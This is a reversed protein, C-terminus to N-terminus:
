RRSAPGTRDKLMADTNRSFRLAPLLGAILGAICALGATVGLLPWDLSVSVGSTGLGSALMSQLVPATWLALVLGTVGGTVSPDRKRAPARAHHARPQCWAPAPGGARQRSVGRALMLGAVNLRAIFLVVGSVVALIRLPLRTSTRLGDLGRAGSRLAVAANAAIEPKIGGDALMPRLKAELLDRTAADARDTM